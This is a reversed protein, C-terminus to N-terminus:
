IILTLINEKYEYEKSLEVVRHYLEPMQDKLFSYLTDDSLYSISKKFNRKLYDALSTKDNFEINNFKLAQELM